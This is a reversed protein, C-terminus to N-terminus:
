RRRWSAISASRGCSCARSSRRASTRCRARAASTPAPRAVDESVAHGGHDRRGVAGGGDRRVVAARRGDRAGGALWGFRDEAVARARRGRTRARSRGVRAGVPARRLAAGRDGRDPAAAARRAAGDRGRRSGARGGLIGRRSLRGAVARRRLSAARRGTRAALRVRAIRAIAVFLLATGCFRALLYLNPDVYPTIARAVIFGTSWLFVFVAAVLFTLMVLSADPSLRLIPSCAAGDQETSCHRRNSRFLISRSTPAPM